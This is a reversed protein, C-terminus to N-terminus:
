CSSSHEPLSKKKLLKSSQKINVDTQTICHHDPLPDEGFKGKGRGIQQVVPFSSYLISM